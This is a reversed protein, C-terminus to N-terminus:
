ARAAGAEGDEAFYRVRGKKFEVTSYLMAYDMVGTKESIRRAADECGEKTTAHLMTFHSYPWDPYIPREYCHSVEPFAGMTKGVEMGREPPVKWVAMANFRFGARRHHLVASYRRMFGEEELKKAYAFLQQQTVGLRDAMARFPEPEVPLDEQLERIVKIDFNTLPRAGENSIAPIKGIIGEVSAPKEDVLDFNVGIKYFRITPLVRASLADAKKALGDVTERLDEGPPVAITFWLNFEHNRAYNHSVGPHGNIVAAGAALREPPFKVAVLCSRYGLKRTDFIAGIQRVVHKRKLDQVRRLVEDASVGVQTAIAQYPRETMPFSAQLVNCIKRDIIDLDSATTTM